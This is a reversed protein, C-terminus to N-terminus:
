LLKEIEAICYSDPYDNQKTRLLSFLKRIRHDPHLRQVSNYSPFMFYNSYLKHVQFWCGFKYRITTNYKDSSTNKMQLM